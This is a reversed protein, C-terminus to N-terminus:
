AGGGGAPRRGPSPGARRVLRMESGGAAAAGSRVEDVLLRVVREDFACSGPPVALDRITVEVGGALAAAEVSLRGEGSAAIASAAVEDVAVEVEGAEVADLGARRAALTVARRILGLYRADRPVTLEVREGM